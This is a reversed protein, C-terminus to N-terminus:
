KVSSGDDALECEEYVADMELIEDEDEIADFDDNNEVRWNIMMKVITTLKKEQRGARNAVGNTYDPFQSILYALFDSVSFEM